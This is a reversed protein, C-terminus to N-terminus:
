LWIVHLLYLVVCLPLLGCCYARARVRVCCALSDAPLVYLHNARLRCGCSPITLEYVQRRVSIVVRPADVCM